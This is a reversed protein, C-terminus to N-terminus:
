RTLHRIANEYVTSRHDVTMVTVTQKKITYIVRHKRVHLSWYGKLTNSLPKGFYEPRIALKTEIAKRVYRRDEEGLKPLDRKSFGPTYEITYTMDM